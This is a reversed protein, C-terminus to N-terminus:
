TYTLKCESFAFVITGQSGIDNWIEGGAEIDVLKYNAKIPIDANDGNRLKYNYTFADNIIEKITKSYQSSPAYWTMPNKADTDLVINYYYITQGNDKNKEAFPQYYQGGEWLYSDQRWKEGKNELNAFALDIVLVNKYLGSSTRPSATDVLWLDVLLSAKVNDNDTQPKSINDDFWLYGVKLQYNLDPSLQFRDNHNLAGGHYKDDYGWPDAGQIAAQWADSQTTIFKTKAMMKMYNKIGNKTPINPQDLNSDCNNNKGFAPNLNNDNNYNKVGWYKNGCGFGPDYTIENQYKSENNSNTITTGNSTSVPHTFKLFTNTYLTNKQLNNVAKVNNTQQSINYM